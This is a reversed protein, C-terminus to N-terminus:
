SSLRPDSVPREHVYFFIASAGAMLGYAAVSSLSAGIIGLRPLLALNLGVNLVAAAAPIWITIAPMGIAACYNMIITHVSLLLLGPLLWLFPAVAASFERGYLLVVTPSVLLGAALIVALMGTALGSIVRRTARHRSSQDSMAALKPFLLTGVVVPLMYVLDALAVAISYYGAQESGLAYKVMLLDSRLVLFSFLAALYARAGYRSHAALLPLEIRPSARMLPRLLVLAAAFSAFGTAVLAGFLIEVSKVGVAVLLLLALVAALKSGAELANFARVRHAGLLLNQLLLYGLGLPVSLLALFLLTGLVPAMAPWAAFLVWGLGAGVAGLGVSVLLTNGVLVPLLRPERAMVYTNSAHLGLNGFQVGLAALAGAVAFLGRGEPGLARTVLVSSVVGIAILFVRTGFTEAVQRLFDSRTLSLWLEQIRRRVAGGGGIALGEATGSM